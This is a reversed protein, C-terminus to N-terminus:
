LVGHRHEASTRPSGHIAWIVARGGEPILHAGDARLSARGGRSALLVCTAQAFGENDIEAVLERHLPRGQSAKAYGLASPVDQHMLQARLNGSRMVKSGVGGRLRALVEDILM